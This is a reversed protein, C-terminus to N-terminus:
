KLHIIFVDCAHTGSLFWVCNHYFQHRKIDGKHPINHTSSQAFWGDSSSHHTIFPAWVHTASLRGLIPLLHFAGLCPDYSFPTGVHTASLRGFMPLQFADLCPYSFPTGVHTASLRGLMPLLQVRSGSVHIDLVAPIHRPLSGEKQGTECRLGWKKPSHGWRLVGRKKKVQGAGIVGNKPSHGCRLCGQKTQWFM